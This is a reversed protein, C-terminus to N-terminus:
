SRLTQYLHLTLCISWELIGELLYRLDYYICLFGEVNQASFDIEISNLIIMCYYLSYLRSIVAFEIRGSTVKLSGAIRRMTFFGVIFMM